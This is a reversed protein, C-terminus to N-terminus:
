FSLVCFLSCYLLYNVELHRQPDVDDSVPVDLLFVVDMVEPSHEGILVFYNM